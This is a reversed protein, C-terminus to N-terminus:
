YLRGPELDLRQCLEHSYRWTAPEEALALIVATTALRSRRTLSVM